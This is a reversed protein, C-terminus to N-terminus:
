RRPPWCFSRVALSVPVPPHGSATARDGAAITEELGVSTLHTLSRELANPADPARGTAFFADLNDLARFGM